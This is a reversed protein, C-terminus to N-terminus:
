PQKKFTNNLRLFPWNVKWVRRHCRKDIYVLKPDLNYLWSSFVRGDNTWSSFAPRRFSGLETDLEGWQSLTKFLRFIIFITYSVVWFFFFPPSKLIISYSSFITSLHWPKKKKIQWQKNQKKNWHKSPWM